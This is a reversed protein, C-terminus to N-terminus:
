RWEGSGRGEYAPDRVVEIGGLYVEEKGVGEKQKERRDLILEVMSAEERPPIRVDLTQYTMEDPITDKGVFTDSRNVVALIRYSAAAETAVRLRHRVNIGSNAPLLFRHFIWRFGERGPRGPDQLVLRIQGHSLGNSSSPIWSTSVWGMTPAVQWGLHFPRSFAPLRLDANDVVLSESTGASGAVTRVGDPSHLELLRNATRILAPQCVVRAAHDRFTRDQFNGDPLIAFLREMSEANAVRLVDLLPGMDGPPLATLGLAEVVEAPEYGMRILEGVAPERSLTGLGALRRAIHLSRERNGALHWLRVAELRQSPYNPDLRDSQELSFRATKEQSSFLQCRALGMWLVSHMPARLLAKEILAQAKAYDPPFLNETHVDALLRLTEVGAPMDEAQALASASETGLRGRWSAESRASGWQGAAWGLVIFGLAMAVVVRYWPISKRHRSGM